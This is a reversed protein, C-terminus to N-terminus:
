RWVIHRSLALLLVLLVTLNDAISQVLGQSCHHLVAQSSLSSAFVAASFRFRLLENYTCVVGYDSLHEVAQKNRVMVALGVQLDTWRKKVISTIVNGLLIAPLSDDLKTPSIYKLLKSFTPSIESKATAIDIKSNYNKKNFAIKKSETQIKKAVERITDETDIEENEVEQLRLTSNAYAKPVLLSAVGPSKM